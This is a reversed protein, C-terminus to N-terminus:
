ALYGDNEAEKEVVIEFTSFRKRMGREVDSCLMGSM